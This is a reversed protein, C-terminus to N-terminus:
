TVSVGGVIYLPLHQHVGWQVSKAFALCTSYLLILLSKSFFSLHYTSFAVRSLILVKFLLSPYFALYTSQKFFRLPAVPLM